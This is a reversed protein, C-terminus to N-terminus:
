GKAIVALRGHHRSFLELLLSSESYPRRHLVWAPEARIRQNGVLM